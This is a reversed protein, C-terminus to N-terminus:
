RASFVRGLWEAVPGFVEEDARVGLLLDLHGVDRKAATFPSLVRVTKDAAGLADLGRIADQPPALVDLDGVLAFTPATVRPLLAAYDTGDEGDFRGTKVWRALQKAIGDPVDTLGDRLFNERARAPVNAPNWLLLDALTGGAPALADAHARLPVRAATTAAGARDALRRLADSPERWGAPSGLLVLAAAAPVAGTAVAILAATGGTGHGLLIVRPAGTRTTVAELAAPVDRRALDDLTWGSEVRGGRLADAKGQGRLDVTWVDFGRAALAKALGGGGAPAFVRADTFADAFCLVPPFKSSNPPAFRTLAVEVGDAARAVYWSAGPVTAAHVGIALLLVLAPAALRGARM